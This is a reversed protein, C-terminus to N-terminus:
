IPTAKWFYGYIGKPKDFYRRRFVMKVPMGIKLSEVVTDTIDLYLRAGGEFDILGYISPPNMSFALKDATFTRIRGIKDYFYYDEMQDIAGCDPNACVRQKPYQTTGCIKCRSGKLAGITEGERYILSLRLSPSEEGRIGADVPILDRYVLYKTYNDIIQKRDVNGRIGMRQHINGIQETTEFYLVDCGSGYGVVLLKEHAKSQELAAILMMLSYASGTDGVKSMLSNQLQSPNIELKKAIAKLASESPCSIIVRDFDRMRLEYKKMLGKIAEPIIKLYGEERIWREEWTHIFLEGQIRRNDPFDRSLSYTGKLEAIVDKKGILIAAAGDGLTHELKSGPKGQRCDVASVLFYGLEDSHIADFASLLATTGSRVTGSFDAARIDSRLGLTEACITANQRELYPATTSSFSIADIENRVFGELCDQSAAVAMTISDEDYSAVAKEGKAVGQTSSNFWGIASFIAERRIRYHPIYAGYSVIGMM